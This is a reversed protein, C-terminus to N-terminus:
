GRRVRWIAGAAVAAVAILGAIFGIPLGGGQDTRAAGTRRGTRAANVMGDASPDASRVAAGASASAPRSPAPPRGASATAGAPSKVPHAGGAAAAGPSASPSGVPPGPLSGHSASPPPSLAATPPPPTPPPAALPPTPPPAAPPCVSNYSVAAPPQNSSSSEFSWGDMDGAHVHYAAVGAQSYSWGTSATRHWYAWYYNGPSYHSCDANAPLGDIQCVFAGDPTYSARSGLVAVGTAGDPVRVCSTTTGGGLSNFSVVLPVCITGAAAVPGASGILGAAAGVLLALLGAAGRRRSM